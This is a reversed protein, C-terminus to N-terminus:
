RPRKREVLHAVFQQRLVRVAVNETLVRGEPVSGERYASSCQGVIWNLIGPGEHEVFWTV